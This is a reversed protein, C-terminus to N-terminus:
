IINNSKILKLIKIPRKKVRLILIFFTWILIELDLFFSNHELYYLQLKVKIPRIKEIFLKDPDNSSNFEKFQFANVLSAWDTIGPKLSLIKREVQTYLNTFTKIDPRPGVLSMDGILVNILQPIEDIKSSRLFKGFKTVRNDKLSVNIFGNKDSNPKMSRFKMLKFPKEKKGIRESLYFVPGKSDVKIILAIVILFPSLILLGLSSVIIDILRKM